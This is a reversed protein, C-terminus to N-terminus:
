LRPKQSYAGDGQMTLKPVIGHYNDISCIEVEFEVSGRPITVRREMITHAISIGKLIYMAKSRGTKNIVMGNPIVPKAINL